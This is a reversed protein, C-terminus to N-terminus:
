GYGLDGVEGIIVYICRVWIKVVYLSLFFEGDIFVVGEIFNKIRCIIIVGIIIDYIVGEGKM